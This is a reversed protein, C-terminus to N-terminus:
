QETNGPHKWPVQRSEHTHSTATGTRVSICSASGEVVLPPVLLREETLFLLQLVLTDAPAPSKEQNYPEKDPSNEQNHPEKDLSKKQPCSESRPNLFVPRVACSAAPSKQQRCLARKVPPILGTEPHGLARKAYRHTPTSCRMVCGGPSAVFPSGTPLPPGQM